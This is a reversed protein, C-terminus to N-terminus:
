RKIHTFPGARFTPHNMVAVDICCVVNEHSSLGYTGTSRTYSGARHFGFGAVRSSAPFGLLSGLFGGHNIRPLMDIKDELGTYQMIVGCACDFNLWDKREEDWVISCPNGPGALVRDLMKKHTMDWARFKLLRQKYDM